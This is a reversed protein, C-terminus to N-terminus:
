LEVGKVVATVVGNISKIDYDVSMDSGVCDAIQNIPINCMDNWRSTSIPIERLEVPYGSLVYNDSKILDTSFLGYLVIFDFQKGAKSTGTKRATSVLKCKAM